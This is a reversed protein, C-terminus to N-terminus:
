VSAPRSKDDKGGINSEAMKRRLTERHIGLMEAAQSHNDDCKALAESIAQRELRALNLTGAAHELSAASKLARQRSTFAIVGM